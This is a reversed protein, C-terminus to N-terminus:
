FVESYLGYWFFSQMKGANLTNTTLLLKNNPPFMTTTFYMYAYHTFQSARPLLYFSLNYQM